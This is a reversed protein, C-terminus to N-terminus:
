LSVLISMYSDIAIHMNGHVLVLQLTLSINYILTPSFLTLSGLVM